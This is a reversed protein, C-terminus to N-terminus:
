IRCIESFPLCSSVLFMQEIKIIASAFSFSIRAPSTACAMTAPSSLNGDAIQAIHLSSSVKERFLIMKSNFFFVRRSDQAANQVKSRIRLVNFSFSRLFTSLFFSFLLSVSLSFYIFLPLLFSSPPFPPLLLFPTSFVVPTGYYWRLFWRCRRGSTHFFSLLASVSHGPEIGEGACALSLSLALVLSCSFLLSLSRVPAQPHVVPHVVLPAPSSAPSPSIGAGSERIAAACNHTGKHLDTLSM